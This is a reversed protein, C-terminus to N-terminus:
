EGRMEWLQHEFIREEGNYESISRGTVGGSSLRSGSEVVCTQLSLDLVPLIADSLRMITVLLASERRVLSNSVTSSFDFGAVFRFISFSADVGFTGSDDLEVILLFPLDTQEDVILDFQLQLQLEPKFILKNWILFYRREFCISAVCSHGMYPPCSQQCVKEEGSKLYLRHLFKDCM